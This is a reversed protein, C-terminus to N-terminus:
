HLEIPPVAHKVAPVLRLASVLAHIDDDTMGTYHPWPMGYLLRTPKTRSMGSKIAAFVEDDSWAGIGTERDSTINAIYVTGKGKVPFPNGGALYMGSLPEHRENTTTHCETCSCAELLWRGRELGGSPAPGAAQELPKPAGRAFMSVPFDIQMRGPDNDSAPISRLFAVVALADEDSMVEAYTLYPMMPFLPRGDKAVGERMARVVEGDTWEGIGKTKDPTINSSHIRGPFFGPMPGFDRGVALRGDVLPEGPLDEHVESHCGMCAFVHRALYEGRAITAQDHPAELTLPARLRPSLVYFKTLVALVLCVILAALGLGLRKLRRM